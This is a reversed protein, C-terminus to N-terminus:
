VLPLTVLMVLASTLDLTAVWGLVAVPVLCALVVQPLYRGFYASLADVGQVAAAAVEATEVGDLSAPRRRLRREVLELRLESLVTSAANSGAIEFGWGVLGRAAFVAALLVLDFGVARLPAGDFARAVIRALLTAQVLVLLTAALGLAVDVGLLVRVARARRVLRPDLARVVDRRGARRRDPASLGPVDLGPLSPGGADGAGRRGDHLCAHLARVVRQRRHPEVLLRLELGDRASLPEHLAHRRHAGNRSRDDRLRARETAPRHVARCPAPGRDRAGRAAGPSL